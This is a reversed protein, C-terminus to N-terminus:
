PPIYILGMESIGKSVELWAFMSIVDDCLAHRASKPSDVEPSDRIRFCEEPEWVRMVPVTLHCAGSSRMLSDSSKSLGLRLVHAHSM